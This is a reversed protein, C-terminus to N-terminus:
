ALANDSSLLYLTEASPVPIDNTASGSRQKLAQGLGWSKILRSGM